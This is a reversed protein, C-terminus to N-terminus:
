KDDLDGEQKRNELFNTELWKKEKELHAFSNEMQQPFSLPDSSIEPAFHLFSKGNDKSGIDFQLNTSNTTQPYRSHLFMRSDGRVPTRSSNMELSGSTENVVSKSPFSVKPSLVGNKYRGKPEAASLSQSFHYSRRSSGADKRPLGSAETEFTGHQFYKNGARYRSPLGMFGSSKQLLM